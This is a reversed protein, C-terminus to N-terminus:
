GFGGGAKKKRYCHFMNDGTGERLVAEVKTSELFAM